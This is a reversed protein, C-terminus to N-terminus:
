GNAPTTSPSEGKVTASRGPQADFPKDYASDWGQEMLVKTEPHLEGIATQFQRGVNTVADRLYSSLDPHRAVLQLATLLVWASQVKLEVTLPRGDTMADYTIELFRADEGSNNM